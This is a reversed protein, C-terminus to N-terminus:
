RIRLRKFIGTVSSVVKAFLGRVKQSLKQLVVESRSTVVLYQETNVQLPNLRDLEIHLLDNQTKLSEVVELLYNIRSNSEELEKSLESAVRKWKANTVKKKESDQKKTKKKTSM